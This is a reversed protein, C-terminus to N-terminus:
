AQRLNGVSDYTFNKTIGGTGASANAYTTVSTPNGRTTFTYGYNADDHQAAGTVSTITTGDYSIDQRFKITGSGDKVLRQTVRNVINRSTYASTSLYTLVTNRVLGGAVGTGWAYERMALLNMGSYDTEIKSQINGDLITTTSSPASGIRTTNITRLLTGGAVGQYILRQTEQGSSNFTYVTQNAATDYSLLPDTVTTTWNTGSQRVFTWVAPTTGDNITRTLNVTTGDSCNVGDNTTGYDYQYYGGTPLTVKKIRGTFYLNQGIYGPTEEHDFVYHQNNPLDLSTPLSATGNYEVVGSCGFSTKITKTAFNLTWIRYTGSTDPVQYQTSGTNYFIKLVVHGATDKWDIENSGVSTASIFNGNTDTKVLAVVKKGDTDYIVPSGPNTADIYYGNGAYGTRPGTNFQCVTATLYFDLDLPFVAGSPDVYKFNTYHTSSPFFPPADCRETFHTSTIKGVLIDKNWGWTPNGNGDVVRAWVGGSPVWILSDYTIAFSFTSGRAPGSVIPIEFHANLNARNILDFGGSEYSGFPVIGVGSQSQALVPITTLLVLPIAFVLRKM